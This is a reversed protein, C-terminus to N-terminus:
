LLDKINEQEDQLEAISIGIKSQLVDNIDLNKIIVFRGERCLGGGVRPGVGM